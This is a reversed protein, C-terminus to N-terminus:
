APSPRAAGVRERGRRIISEAVLANIAWAGAMMVTRPVEGPWGGVLVFWPLHTFVQTGAGLGLAYASSVCEGHASFDRRRVADLALLIAGAMAVGVVLRTAYLAYGDSAPWEYFHSMWLGTVAAVLGLLALLMGAARHWARHRRRFGKSFQLAGLLSYPIVALVHLVVPLPSVFFRVDEPKVPEGNVLQHIRSVGAVAPVVSLAILGAPVLWDSRTSRM